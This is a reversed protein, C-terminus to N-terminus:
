LVFFFFLFLVCISHSFFSMTTKMTGLCLVHRDKDQLHPYSNEYKGDCLEVPSTRNNQLKTHLSSLM